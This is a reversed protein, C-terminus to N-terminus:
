WPLRLNRRCKRKCGLRQIQVIHWWVRHFSTKKKAHFVHNTTHWVVVELEKGGIRRHPQRQRPRRQRGANGSSRGTGDPHQDRDSETGARHSRDPPPRAQDLGSVVATIWDAFTLVVTWSCLMMTPSLIIDTLISPLHLITFPKDQFFIMLTWNGQDILKLPLYLFQVFRKCSARQVLAKAVPKTVTTSLQLSSRRKVYHASLVDVSGQFLRLCNIIVQSM